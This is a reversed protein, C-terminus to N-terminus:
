EVKELTQFEVDVARKGKQLKIDMGAELPTLCAQRNGVGNIEVLCEFCVGMLCYPARPTESVASSRCTTVGNELLTIAVPDGEIGTLPKGEVTLSVQKGKAAQCRKFM